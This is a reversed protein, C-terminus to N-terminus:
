STGRRLAVPASTWKQTSQRVNETREVLHCVNPGLVGTGERLVHERHYICGPVGIDEVDGVM